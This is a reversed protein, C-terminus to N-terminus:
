SALAAPNAPAVTNLPIVPKPPLLLIWVDLINLNDSSKGNIMSITSLISLISFKKGFSLSIKSSALQPPNTVISFASTM